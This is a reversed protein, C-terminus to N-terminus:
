FHKPVTLFPWAKVSPPVQHRFGTHFFIFPAVVKTKKTVKIAFAKSPSITTMLTLNGMEPGSLASSSYLIFANIM